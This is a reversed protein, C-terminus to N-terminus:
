EELLDLLGTVALKDRVQGKAGHAIFQKGRDSAERWLSLLFGIGELDIRRVHSLDVWLSRVGSDSFRPELAEKVRETPIDGGVEGRLLLRAESGTADVVEYDLVM